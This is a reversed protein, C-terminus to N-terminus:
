HEDPHNDREFNDALYYDLMEGFADWAQLLDIIVLLLSGCYLLWILSRIFPSSRNIEKQRRISLREYLDNVVERVSIQPRFREALKEIERPSSEDSNNLGDAVLERLARRYSEDINQLNELTKVVSSSNMEMSVHSDESFEVLNSPSLASLLRDAFLFIGFAVVATWTDWTGIDIGDKGPAGFVVALIFPFYLRRAGVFRSIKILSIWSPVLDSAFKGINRQAEKSILRRSKNNAM